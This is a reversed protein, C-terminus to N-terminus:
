GLRRAAARKLMEPTVSLGTVPGRALRRRQEQGFTGGRGVKGFKGGGMNLGGKGAWIPDPPAINPGGEPGPPNYVYNPDNGAAIPPAIPGRRFMLDNPPQYGPASAVSPDVPPPPNRNLLPM